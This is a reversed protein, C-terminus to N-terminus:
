DRPGADERAEREGGGRRDPAQGVDNKLQARTRIISETPRRPAAPPARRTTAAPLPPAKQLQAPYYIGPMGQLRLVIPRARRDVSAVVHRTEDWQKRFGKFGVAPRPKPIIVTDGPHFGPGKPRPPPSPLQLQAVRSWNEEAAMEEPSMGFTKNTHENYQRTVAHVHQKWGRGVARDRLKELAGRQYQIYREALNAKGNTHYVEVGLRALLRSHVVASERDSHIRQPAFGATRIVHALAETLSRESKTSMAESYAVRTFVDVANLIYGRNSGQENGTYDTLDVQWVDNPGLAEYSRYERPRQVRRYLDPARGPMKAPPRGPVSPSAKLVTGLRGWRGWGGGM